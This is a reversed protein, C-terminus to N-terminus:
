GSRATALHHGRGLHRFLARDYFALVALCLWHGRLPLREVFDLSRPPLGRGRWRWIRIARRGRSRQGFHDVLFDRLLALRLRPKKNLRAGPAAASRWLRREM